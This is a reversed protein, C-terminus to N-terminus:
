GTTGTETTLVVNLVQKGENRVLEHIEPLEFLPKELADLFIFEGHTHLFPLLKTPHDELQAGGYRDAASRFAAVILSRATTNEQFPLSIWVQTSASAAAASVHPNRIFFSLKIVVPASEKPLTLASLSM